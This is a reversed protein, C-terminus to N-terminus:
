SATRASIALHDCCRWLEIEQLRNLLVNLLSPMFDRLRKAVNQQHNPGASGLKNFWNRLEDNPPPFGSPDHSSRALFLFACFMFGTTGRQRLCMPVTIIKRAAEHVVRSKGTGSSNVM